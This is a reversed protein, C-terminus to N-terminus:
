YFSLKIDVVTIFWKGILSTIIIKPLPLPYTDPIVAKNLVHLDAVVRGKKIGNITYWAIFVPTIFPTSKTVWKICGKRHFENLTKNILERDKQSVPYLCQNLKIRNWNNVLPITILEDKAM